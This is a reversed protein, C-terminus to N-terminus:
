MGRDNGQNFNKPLPWYQSKSDCTERDRQQKECIILWNKMQDATLERQTSTVDQYIGVSLLECFGPSIRNSQEYCQFRADCSWYLLAVVIISLIIKNM